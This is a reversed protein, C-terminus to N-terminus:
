AYTYTAREDWEYIYSDDGNPLYLSGSVEKYIRWTSASTLTGPAAIGHYIGSSDYLYKVGGGQRVLGGPGQIYPTVKKAHYVNDHELKAIENENPLM